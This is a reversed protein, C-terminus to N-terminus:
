KTISCFTSIKSECIIVYSEDPDETHQESPQKEENGSTVACRLGAERLWLSTLLSANLWNTLILHDPIELEM